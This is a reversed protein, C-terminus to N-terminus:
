IEKDKNEENNQKSPGDAIKMNPGPKYLISIKCQYFRLLICELLLLLTAVDEKFVIALPKHDTIVSVERSFCYICIM